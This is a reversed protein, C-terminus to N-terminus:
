SLGAAGVAMGIGYTIAAAATGLLLQRSGGLWVPMSTLRAVVGGSCFLGVASIVAVWLISSGGFLLPIIPVFAGLAFSLFSSVAAVWPSPLDDPDIGLEERAHVRWATDSDQTLENAVQAALAQHLGKSRYISTLEALEEDPNEALERKEVAIEARILESQSSVSTFEGVAMSCSGAVLGALGTLVQTHAAAGGGIVGALLALNSVLGDMMGFTAPRVWGGTVDRHSHHIEPQHGIGASV